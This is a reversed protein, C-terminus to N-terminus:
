MLVILQASVYQGSVQMNIFAKKNRALIEHVSRLGDGSHNPKTSVASGMLQAETIEGAYTNKVIMELSDAINRMEVSVYRVDAQVAAELANDLLVGIVQCLDSDALARSFRLGNQVYLNIPLNEQRAHEIAQLLLASVSPNIVRELAVINENNVLACKETMERYYSKINETDGSLIAGEFGYLMNVMNHRFSRLNSLLSANILQQQELTENRSLQQLYRRDQLLYSLCILLFVCTVAIKLVYAMVMDTYMGNRMAESFISTMLIIMTIGLALLLFMRTYIIVLRRKLKSRLSKGSLARVIKRFIVLFLATLLLGCSSVLTTVLMAKPNLLDNVTLVFYESDTINFVSVVGYMLVSCVLETGLLGFLFRITLSLWKIGRADYLWYALLLILAVAMLAGYGSSNLAKNLFMEAILLLSHKLMVSRNWPKDAIVTCLIYHSFGDIFLLPFVAAVKGALILIEAM